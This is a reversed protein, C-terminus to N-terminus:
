VQCSENGKVEKYKISGFTQRVKQIKNNAKQNARWSFCRQETKEPKFLLPHVTRIDPETICKHNVFFKCEKCDNTMIM